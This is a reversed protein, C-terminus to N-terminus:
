SLMVLAALWRGEPVERWELGSPAWDFRHLFCTAGFDAPSRDIRRVLVWFRAAANRCGGAACPESM